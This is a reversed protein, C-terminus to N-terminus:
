GGGSPWGSKQLWGRVERDAVEPDLPLRVAEGGRALSVQSALLLEYARYGEWGTTIPAELGRIAQLFNEIMGMFGGFEEDFVLSNPFVPAWTKAPGEESDYLTLQYQDHVDLWAHNGYVEVREWPKLSLASASTYLAGVAGSVFEFTCVANDIPYGRKNAQYKNVGVARASEVDGVLYRTMDFLHITGSEFLDIYDYGLNFKGVFLSPNSVPGEVIFRKARRYPPSYRKNAVTMLVLGKQDAVRCMLLADALSRAIPKEVMVHRGAELCAISHEAHLHDPSAVIVGDLEEEALMKRCDAYWRGGFVARVKDAQTEDPTTFAVVEVPEWLVRLRSIAPWHKSQVVGGAGVFGLRIRRRSAREEDRAIGYVDKQEFAKKVPTHGYTDELVRLTGGCM